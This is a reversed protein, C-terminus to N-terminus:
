HLLKRLTNQAYQKDCQPEDNTGFFIYEQVESLLGQLSEDRCFLMLSALSFNINISLFQVVLANM